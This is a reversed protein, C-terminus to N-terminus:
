DRIAVVGVMWRMRVRRGRVRQADHRSFYTSPAGHLWALSLFRGPASHVSVASVFVFVHSPGCRSRAWALSVPSNEPEEPESAPPINAIDIWDASSRKIQGTFLFLIFARKLGQASVSEMTNCQPSAWPMLFRGQLYEGFRSCLCFLCFFFPLILHCLFSISPSHM